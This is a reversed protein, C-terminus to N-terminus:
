TTIDEAQVPPVAATALMVIQCSLLLLDATLSSTRITRQIRQGFLNRFLWVNGVERRRVEDSAESDPVEVKWRWEWLLLLGGNSAVVVVM